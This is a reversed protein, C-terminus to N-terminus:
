RTRFKRIREDMRALFGGVRDQVAQGLRDSMGLILRDLVLEQRKKAIEPNFVRERVAGRLIAMRDRNTLPKPPAPEEKPPPTAM